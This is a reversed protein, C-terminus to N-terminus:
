RSARNLIDVVKQAAPSLKGKGQFFIDILSLDSGYFSENAAWDVELISGKIAIGAFLGKARSYSLMGASLDIDASASADRGVPGAAVSADAGITIRDRFLSRLNVDSMVLLVLDTSQIGVQWGFSGGLLRVFAPPGWKGQSPNRRLIIGKGYHGGVGLGAKLVAPLVVIARSRRLLDAPIGGDTADLMDNLARACEELRSELEARPASFAADPNAGIALLALIFCVGPRLM